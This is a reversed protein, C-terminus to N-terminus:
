PLYPKIVTNISIDDNIPIYPKIIENVDIIAPTDNKLYPKIIENINLITDNKL